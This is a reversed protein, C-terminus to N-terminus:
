KDFKKAAINKMELSVKDVDSARESVELWVKISKADLATQGVILTYFRRTQANAPRTMDGEYLSRQLLTGIKLARGQDDEADFAGAFIEPNILQPNAEFVLALGANPWLSRLYEPYNPLENPASFRQIKRLILGHEGDDPPTAVTQDRPIEIERAFWEETTVRGELDFKLDYSQAGDPIQISKVEITEGPSLPTGDSHWLHTMPSGTTALEADPAGNDFHARGRMISWRLGRQANAPASKSAMLMMESRGSWKLGDSDARVEVEDSQARGLERPANDIQVPTIIETARLKKLDYRLRQRMVPSSDELSPAKEQIEIRLNPLSTLNKDFTVFLEDDGNALSGNNLDGKTESDSNEQNDFFKLRYSSLELDAPAAPKQHHVVVFVQGFKDRRIKVVRFQTGLASTFERDIPTEQNLAPLEVDKLEIAGGSAVPATPPAAVDVDMDIWDWNPDVGADTFGVVDPQGKVIRARVYPAFPAVFQNQPGIIRRLVIRQAIEETTATAGTSKISFTCTFVPTSEVTQFGPFVNTSYDFGAQVPTISLDGAAFAPPLDPRSAPSTAVTTATAPQAIPHVPKQPAPAAIQARHIIERAQLTAGKDTGVVTVLEGIQLETAAGIVTKLKPAALTAHQGNPNVFATVELTWQADGLAAVRGELAIEGDRPLTATDTSTPVNQAHAFSIPACGLCLALLAPVLKM